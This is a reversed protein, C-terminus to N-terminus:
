PRWRLGAGWVGIPRNDDEPPLTLNPILYDGVKTYTINTKPM